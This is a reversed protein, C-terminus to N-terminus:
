RTSDRSGIPLKRNGGILAIGKHEAINAIPIHNYSNVLTGNRDQHSFIRGGQLFHYYIGSVIAYLILLASSTNGLDAGFVKLFLRYGIHKRRQLSAHSTHIHHLSCTNRTTSETHTDTTDVTQTTRAIFRQINYVTHGKSRLSHTLTLSRSSHRGSGTRKGRQRGGINFTNFDKLIGIGGSDITRTTGITNHKNGGFSAFGTSRLETSCGTSSYTNGCSLKVKHFRGLINCHTLLRIKIIANGGIRIIGIIHIASPFSVAIGVPLLFKSSTSRFDGVQLSRNRTATCLIMKQHTSRGCCLTSNKRSVKIILSATTMNRKVMLTIVLPKFSSKRPTIHYLLIVLRGIVKRPKGSYQSGICRCKIIFIPTQVPFVTSPFIGQRRQISFYKRFGIGKSGITSKGVSKRITNSGFCIHTKSIQTMGLAAGIRGSDIIRDIFGSRFIRSNEKATRRATRPNHFRLQVPVTLYSTARKSKQNTGSKLMLDTVTKALITRSKGTVTQNIIQRSRTEASRISILLSNVAILRNIATGIIGILILIDQVKGSATITRASKTGSLLKGM